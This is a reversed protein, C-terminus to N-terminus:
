NLGMHEAKEKLKQLEIYDLVAHRGINSLSLVDTILHGSTYDGVVTQNMAQIGEKCDTRGLLYDVSVNYFNALAIVARTQLESDGQECRSYHQQSTGIIKAIDSQRLDKDERLGRIIEYPEKM